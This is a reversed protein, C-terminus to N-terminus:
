SDKKNRYVKILQFILILGFIVIPSVCLVKTIDSYGPISCTDDNDKIMQIGQQIPIEKKNNSKNVLNHVKIGWAMLNTKNRLAEENLPYEKLHDIYNNKCLICPIVDGLSLFFNRYQNKQINTPKEPYGMTVYHIFKWGHPGWTDPGPM